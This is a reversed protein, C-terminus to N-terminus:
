LLLPTTIEQGLRSSRRQLQKCPLSIATISSKHQHDFTRLDVHLPVGVICLTHQGFRRIEFLRNGPRHIKGVAMRPRQNDHRAIM